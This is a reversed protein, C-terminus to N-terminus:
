LERLVMNFHTDWSPPLFMSQKTKLSLNVWKVDLRQQIERLWASADTSSIYVARDGLIESVSPLNASIVEAGLAAAELPPLGYGEALSPFLLGRSRSLLWAIEGDDLGPTEIVHPELPGLADLKAFVAENAWGRAGCIVLQPMANAPQVALLEQWVNLLLAHGKRPEITGVMVFFPRSPDLPLARKLPHPTVPNVGLPAVIVRPVIGTAHRAFDNATAGSNAIVMDAFVCIRRLFARFPEITGPRQLTPHDLPITDHVFVAIRVKAQHKLSSLVRDTANSHGTNFYVAGAPLYKALMRGLSVPLCRALALRRLDAEAARQTDDLGRAIRSLRDPPGWPTLGTVRAQFARCGEKNLLLYGLSTRILGFLPQPLNVFHTLYALEVRDVGTLSRGARRTLRTLDLIHASPNGSMAELSTGGGRM